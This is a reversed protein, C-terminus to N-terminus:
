DEEPAFGLTSLLQDLDTDTDAAVPEVRGLEREADARADDAPHPLDEVCAYGAAVLSARWPFGSALPTGPLANREGLRVSAVARLGEAEASQRLRERWRRPHM